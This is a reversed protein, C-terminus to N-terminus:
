EKKVYRFTYVIKKISENSLHFIAAIQKIDKGQKYLSYIRENRKIFYSRTGNKEGWKAKKNKKIPIYILEGHIYKQIEGLLENPLIDKGNKYRL